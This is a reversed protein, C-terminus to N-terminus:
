STTGYLNGATDLTLGGTPFQGDSGGTFEHLVTLTQASASGTLAALVVSLIVARPLKHKRM